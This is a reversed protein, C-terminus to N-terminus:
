NLNRIFEPTYKRKVGGGEKSFWKNQWINSQSFIIKRFFYIQTYFTIFVQSKIDWKEDFHSFLHFNSSLVPRSFPPYYINVGQITIMSCWWKVNIELKFRTTECFCNVIKVKQSFLNTAPPYSEFFIFAQQYLKLKIRYSRIWKKGKQKFLSMFWFNFSFFIKKRKTISQDTGLKAHLNKSRFKKWWVNSDLIDPRLRFVLAKESFM